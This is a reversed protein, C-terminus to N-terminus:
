EGGAAKRSSLTTPVAQGIEVQYDTGQWKNQQPWYFTFRIPVTQWPSVQIDVYDVGLATPTSSTDHPTTWEDDSWHLLFPSHGLIRLLGGALVCRVQRAM